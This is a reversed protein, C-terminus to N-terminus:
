CRRGSTTPWRAAPSGRSWGASRAMAWRRGTASRGSSTWPECRRSTELTPTARFRRRIPGRSGRPGPRARPRGSTPEYTDNRMGATKGLLEPRPGADDEGTSRQISPPHGKPHCGGHGPDGSRSSPAVAHFVVRVPGVRVGQRGLRDLLRRPREARGQPLDPGPQDQGGRDDAGALQDVRRAQPRLGPEAQEPQDQQAAHDLDEHLDLEAPVRDRVAPRRERREVGQRARPEPRRPQAPEVQDHEQGRLRLDGRHLPGDALRRM